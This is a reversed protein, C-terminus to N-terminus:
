EAESFRLIGRPSFMRFPISLLRMGRNAQVAFHLHPGTSHGSNGSLGIRQGRWVRQGMKVLVGDRALHAYVAMSGDNHLIRLTVADKARPESVTYSSGHIGTDVGEVQMVVGDRAALVPTGLPAGFDVAHRNQEDAHSYSGGWGQEIRPEPLQLPFGYEYDDPIASPSGPVVDLRLTAPSRVRAVLTSNRASVTARAPLEPDADVGPRDASLRVQVPGTLPNDAWALTVGDEREIRLTVEAARAPQLGTGLLLCLVLLRAGSKM